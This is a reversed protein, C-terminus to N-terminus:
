ILSRRFREALPLLGVMSNQYLPSFDVGRPQSVQGGGLLGAQQQVTPPTLMNKITNATRLTDLVSTEKPVSPLTLTDTTFVPKGLVNPNNIFSSPDGLVPTSGVPTLGLEGVVGLPVVAGTSSITGVPVTLGQAGGMSSLGPTTPVVLGEGSAGPLLGTEGMSSTYAGDLLGIGTGGAALSAGVGPALTFGAPATLGTAATSTAFPAATSPVTSAAAKLGEVPLQAGELLSITSSGGGAGTTVAGAEAAPAATTGFVYPAAVVAALALYPTLDTKTSKYAPLFIPKGDVFQVSYDAQGEVSTDFGYREYGNRSVIPEPRGVKFASPDEKWNSRLEVKPIEQGTQKNILYKTPDEAVTVKFRDQFLPEGGETDERVPTDPALDLIKSPDIRVNYGPGEDEEQRYYFDEGVRFVGGITNQNPIEKLGIDYINSVGSAALKAAQAELIRDVDGPKEYSYGSRDYQERLQSKLFDVTQYNLM